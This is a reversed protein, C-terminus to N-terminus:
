QRRNKEKGAEAHHRVIEFCEAITLDDLGVVKIV